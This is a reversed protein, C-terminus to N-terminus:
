KSFHVFLCNLRAQLVYGICNLLLAFFPFFVIVFYNFTGYIRGTAGIILCGASGCVDRSLYSFYIGALLSLFSLMVCGINVSIRIRNTIYTRYILPRCIALLREASMILLVLSPLQGGVIFFYPWPRSFCEFSNLPFYVNASIALVNKMVISSYRQVFLM